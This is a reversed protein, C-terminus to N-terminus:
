PKEGTDPKLADRADRLHRVPVGGYIGFIEHYAASEAFPKLLERLREITAKAESLEAEARDARGRQYGASKSIDEYIERWEADSKILDFEKLEANEETLRAIEAEAKETDLKLEDYADKLFAYEQATVTLSANLRAVEAKAEDRESLMEAFRASNFAHAEAYTRNEAALRLLEAAALHARQGNATVPSWTQLWDVLAAVDPKDAM